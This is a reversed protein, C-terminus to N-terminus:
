KWDNHFLIYYLADELQYIARHNIKIDREMCIAHLVEHVFTKFQEKDSQKTKMAIQKSDFRCEGMTTPEKFEDVWVIEYAVKNKIKLRSPIAFKKVKEGIKEGCLGM